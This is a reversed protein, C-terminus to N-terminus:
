EGAVEFRNSIFTDDPLLRKWDSLTKWNFLPDQRGGLTTVIHVVETSLGLVHMDASLSVAEADDLTPLVQESIAIDVDRAFVDRLRDRSSVDGIDEDFIDRSTQKRNGSRLRTRLTADTGAPDLGVATIAMDIDTDESKGKEAQIYPSTDTGLVNTYGLAELSEVLWGFGAGVVVITSTPPWQFHRKLFEARRQAFPLLVVRHYNLRVEPRTNPHGEPEAGISYDADFDAKTNYTKRPM